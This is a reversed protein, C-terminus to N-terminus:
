NIQQLKKKLSRAKEMDKKAASHGPEIDLALTWEEIAEDIKENIFYYVGARYHDEADKQFRSVLDKADINDKDHALIRNVYVRAEKFRKDDYLDAAKFLLEEYDIEEARRVTPQLSAAAPLQDVSLKPIKLSIGIKLPAKEDIDNFYAIISSGGADGYFQQAILSLTDREKTTYSIFPDDILRTRLYQLAERHDPRYGLSLLFERRAGDIQGKAALAVGQKYHTEAKASAIEELVRVKKVAAEDGPRLSALIKWRDIAEPLRDAREFEEAQIKLRESLPPMTRDVTGSPTLTACGSTMLLVLIIGSWQLKMSYKKM